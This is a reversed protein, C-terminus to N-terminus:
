FVDRQIEERFCFNIDQIQVVCIFRGQQVNYCVNIFVDFIFCMWLWVDFNIVQWLFWLQVWFVGYMFGNFFCNRFYNVGQFVQIFYICQVGIWIGIKVFQGSFLVMQFFDNLSVVIMVQVYLQFMCCICQMQWVLVCFDSVEGIIFM